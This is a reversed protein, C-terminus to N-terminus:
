EPRGLPLIPGSPREGPIASAVPMGDDPTLVVETKLGRVTTTLPAVILENLSDVVEDRTLLLVPRRKTQRDFRTVM